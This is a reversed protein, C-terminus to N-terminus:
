APMLIAEAGGDVILSLLAEAVHDATHQPAADPALIPTGGLLNKDFDTETLYPHIVSVTIGDASLEARAVASLHNLAAKTSAYAGTTPYVGLSAGSSVNVIVGSGRRRMHPVVARMAALPAILNVALIARYMDVNTDCVSSYFGQGANNVLVDIRGHAALTFEMLEALHAEQTVDTPVALAPREPRSATLEDAIAAILEPRRGALVVHAGAAHAARATAEGIGTGAGTIIMIAGDLNM